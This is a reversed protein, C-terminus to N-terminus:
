SMKTASKHCWTFSSSGLPVEELGANAIFSNFVNAGQVNFLLGFRKSKYRVENFDGMIIVEGKWNNIVQTLYDWLMKKENLDQPAYVSVILLDNGTKIRVGRIIIFYDSITVDIKRFSSPDWVCLIGRSNGVSDSHVYDFVFNGWCMKVSFLEMSEM